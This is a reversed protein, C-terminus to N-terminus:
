KKLLFVKNNMKVPVSTRTLLRTNIRRNSKQKWSSELLLSSISWHDERISGLVLIMKSSVRNIVIDNVSYHCQALGRFHQMTHAIELVTDSNGIDIVIQDRQFNLKSWISSIKLKKKLKGYLYFVHLVLIKMSSNTTLINAAQSHFNLNNSRYM